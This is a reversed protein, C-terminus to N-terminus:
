LNAMDVFYNGNETKAIGGSEIKSSISDLADQIEKRVASFLTETNRLTEQREGATKAYQQIEGGARSEELQAELRAVKQTLARNRGHLLNLCNVMASSQDADARLGSFEDELQAILGHLRAVEASHNAIQQDRATVQRAHEAVMAELVQQRDTAAVLANRDHEAQESVQQLQEALADKERTAAELATYKEDLSAALEELQAELQHTTDMQVAIAHEHTRIREEYEDKMASVQAAHLAEKEEAQQHYDACLGDIYQLVQKRKFGFLSTKLKVPKM